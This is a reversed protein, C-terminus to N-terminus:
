LIFCIFNGKPHQKIIVLLILLVRATKSSFLKVIRIKILENTRKIACIESKNLSKKLFNLFQIVENKFM